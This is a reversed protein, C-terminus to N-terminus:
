HFGRECVIQRADSSWNKMVMVLKDFNDVGLKYRWLSTLVGVISFTRKTEIQSRPIEFHRAVFSVNPFRIEHSKWWTLPLICDKPKVPLHCFLGLENKLLGHLTVENSAIAGFISEDDDIVIIKLLGIASLNQIKFAVVLLPMLSINDYKAVM